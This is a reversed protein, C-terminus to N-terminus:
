NKQAMSVWSWFVMAKFTIFCAGQTPVQRGLRSDKSCEKTSVHLIYTTIFSLCLIFSNNQLYRKQTASPKARLEWVVFTNVRM